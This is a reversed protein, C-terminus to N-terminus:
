CRYSTKLGARPVSRSIRLPPYPDQKKKPLDLSQHVNTPFQIYKALVKTFGCISVASRPVPSQVALEAKLSIWRFFMSIWPFVVSILLFHLFILLFSYFIFFFRCINIAIVCFSFTGRDSWAKAHDSRPEPLVYAIHQHINIYKSTNTPRQRSSKLWFCVM